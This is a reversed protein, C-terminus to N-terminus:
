CDNSFLLIALIFVLSLVLHQCPHVSVPESMYQQHPYLIACGNQLITQCTKLSFKLYLELVVWCNSEQANIGSFPFSKNVYFGTHM